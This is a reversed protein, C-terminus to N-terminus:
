KLDRLEIRLSTIRDYKIIHGLQSIDNGAIHLKNFSYEDSGVISSSRAFDHGILTSHIHGFLVYDINTKYLQSYKEKLKSINKEVNSSGITEGHTLLINKGNTQLVYELTDCDNLFECRDKYRIKLQQFLMYDFNDRALSNTSDLRDYMDIRSENGVVGAFSVKYGCELLYDINDSLIEFLRLTAEMRSALENTRQQSNLKSLNAMDGTFVILVDNINNNEINLEHQFFLYDLRKKLINFNFKNHQLDVTKNSHLDSLHIIYKEGNAKNMNFTDIPVKNEKNYQYVFENMKENVYDYIHEFRSLSRNEKRLINLNDRTTQLSKRLKSNEKILLENEEKIKETETKYISNIHKDDELDYGDYGDTIILEFKHNKHKNREGSLVYSVLRETFGNDKCMRKKSKYYKVEGNELNIMKFIKM